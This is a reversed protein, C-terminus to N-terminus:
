AGGSNHPRAGFYWGVSIGALTVLNEILLRFYGNAESRTFQDGFNVVIYVALFVSCASLLGTIIPRTLGRIADVVILLQSAHSVDVTAYRATDSQMSEMMAKADIVRTELELNKDMLLQDSQLKMKLAAQEYAYMKAEHANDLKKLELQQKGELYKSVGAAATGLLGGGLANSFFEVIASM